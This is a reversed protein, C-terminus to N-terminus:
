ESDEQLFCAEYPGGPMGELRNAEDIPIIRPGGRIPEGSSDTIDRTVGGATVEVEGSIIQRQQFSKGDQCKYTYLPSGHRTRLEAGDSVCAACGLAMVVLLTSRNM